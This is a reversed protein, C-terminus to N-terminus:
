AREDEDDPSIPHYRNRSRGDDPQDNTDQRRMDVSVNVKDRLRSQLTNKLHHIGTELSRAAESSQTEFRVTLGNADRKLIVDTKDLIHDALTIRVEPDKQEPASVLIQQAVRQITEQAADAGQRVDGSTFQKEEAQGMTALLHEFQPVFSASETEAEMRHTQANCAGPWRGTDHAGTGRRTVHSILVEAPGARHRDLKRPSSAKSGHAHKAKSRGPKHADTNASRVASRFQRAHEADGAKPTTAPKAPALDPNSYTAASRSEHAKDVM